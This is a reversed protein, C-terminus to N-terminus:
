GGSVPPAGKSSPVIRVAVSASATMNASGSINILVMEVSRLRWDGELAKQQDDSSVLSWPLTPSFAALDPSDFQIVTPSYNERALVKMRAGVLPNDYGQWAVREKPVDSLNIGDATVTRCDSGARDRHSSGVLKVQEGAIEKNAPGALNVQPPQGTRLRFVKATMDYGSGSVDNPGSTSASMVEIMVRQPKDPSSPAITKASSLLYGADADLFIQPVGEYLGHVEDLYRIAQPYNHPPLIISEYTRGNDPPAFFFKYPKEKPVSNHTIAAVVDAIHVGHWVGNNLKKGVALGITPSLELHATITPVNEVTNSLQDSSQSVPTGDMTMVQFEADTLYPENIDIPTKPAGSAEKGEPTRLKFVSLYLRGERWKDQIRRMDFSSIRVSLRYYPLVHADFDKLIRLETVWQSLDIEDAEAGGKPILKAHIDYRFVHFVEKDTQIDTM